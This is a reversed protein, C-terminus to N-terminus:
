PDQAPLELADTVKEVGATAEALEVARRKQAEDRVTGKLEVESGEVHVQIEAQALGKDWRLRASVRTELPAEELGGHVAQWGRALKADAGQTVLEAKALVMRGVRAMRTADENNCGASLSAAVALLLCLCGPRFVGIKM